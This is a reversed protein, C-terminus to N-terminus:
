IVIFYEEEIEQKTNYIDDYFSKWLDKSKLKKLSSITFNRDPLISKEFLFSYLKAIVFYSIIIFALILVLFIFINENIVNALTHLQNM